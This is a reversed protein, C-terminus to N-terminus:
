EISPDVGGARYSWLTACALNSGFINEKRISIPLVKSGSRGSSSTGAHIFHGKACPGVVIHVACQPDVVIYFLYPLKGIVTLTKPNKCLM